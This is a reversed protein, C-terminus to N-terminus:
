SALCSFCAASESLATGPVADVGLYYGPEAPLWDLLHGDFCGLEFVSSLDQGRRKCVRQIWNFRINHIYARLGGGFIRENYGRPKKM